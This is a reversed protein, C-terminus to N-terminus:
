PKRPSQPLSDFAAPHGPFRAVLEAAVDRAADARRLTTLLRIRLALMEPTNRLPPDRRTVVALLREAAVVEGQMALLRAEALPMDGGLKDPPAEHAWRRLVDAAEDAAGADLLSRLTEPYAASRIVGVRWGADEGAGRVRAVRKGTQGPVVTSSLAEAQAYAIRAEDIKGSLRAVDGALLRATRRARDDPASELLRAVEAPADADGAVVLAEVRRERLARRRGADPAGSELEALLACTASVDGRRRAAAIRADEVLIRVPTALSSVARPSRGAVEALDGGVALLTRWHSESWGKAPETGTPVSAASEAFAAKWAEAVKPQNVDHAPPPSWCTLAMTCTGVKGGSSVRLTVTGGSDGEVLRVAKNGSVRRGDDFEWSVVANEPLGEREAVLEFLLLPSEGFWLYGAAANRGVITAVPGGDRRETRVVHAPISADMAATSVTTFDGGVANAQLAHAEASGDGQFHLYDLRHEGATLKLEGTHLPDRPGGRGHIGDWKVVTAGDVMLESGDDSVTAFRRVLPSKVTFHGHYWSVYNTDPGAPNETHGIRGVHTLIASRGPPREKTLAAAKELSPAAVPKTYLLLGPKLSEPCDPPPVASPSLYLRAVGDAPPAFVVGLGEAPNHWVLGCALPRGAGDVVRPLAYPGPLRGGDPVIALVGASPTTQVAPVRLRVRVPSEPFEWAAPALADLAPRPTVRNAESGSARACVVAVGIFLAM